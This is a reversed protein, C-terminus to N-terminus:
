NLSSDNGVIEKVGVMELNSATSEMYAHFIMNEAQKKHFIAAGITGEVLVYVVEKETEKSPDPHLFINKNDKMRIFYADDGIANMGRIPVVAGKVWEEKDQQAKKIGRGM